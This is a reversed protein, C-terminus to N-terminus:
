KPLNQVSQPVFGVDDVGGVKISDTDFEISRELVTVMTNNAGLEEVIEKWLSAADDSM